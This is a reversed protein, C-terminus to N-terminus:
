PACIGIIEIHEGSIMCDAKLVRVKNENKIETIECSELERVSAAAAKWREIDCDPKGCEDRFSKILFDASKVTRYEDMAERWACYVPASVQSFGFLFLGMVALATLLEIFTM